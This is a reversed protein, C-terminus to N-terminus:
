WVVASRRPLCMSETIVKPEGTSVVAGSGIGSEGSREGCQGPVQHVATSSLLSVSGAQATRSPKLM